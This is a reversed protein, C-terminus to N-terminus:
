QAPACRVEQDISGSDTKAKLRWAEGPKLPAGQLAVPWHRTVGALIYPSSRSDTKLNRGDPATLEIERLADHRTGDNLGVLLMDQSDSELHFQLHPATKGAPEALVPISLRLAMQITGAKGESPIQDVLIRYTSERGTAPRRLLPRIVQSSGTPLTAIPPSALIVNTEILEDGNDRQNWAFARVQISMESQSRNTVTVIARRQDPQLNINVPAISLAQGLAASAASALLTAAVLAMAASLRYPDRLM